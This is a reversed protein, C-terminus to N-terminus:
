GEARKALEDPKLITIRHQDDLSIWARKRFFGLVKNVSERSAGVLGALDSQTLRIGIQPNLRLSSEFMKCADDLKGADQLAKGKQFLASATAEEEASRQTTPTRVPCPDAAAVGTCLVIM